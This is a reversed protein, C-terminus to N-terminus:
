SQTLEKYHRSVLGMESKFIEFVDSEFHKMRNVRGGLGTGNEITEFNAERTIGM